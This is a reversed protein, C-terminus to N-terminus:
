LKTGLRLGVLALERKINNLIVGGVGHLKLLDRETLQVLDRMKWIDRRELANLFITNFQTPNLRIVDEINTDLLVKPNQKNFVVGFIESHEQVHNEILKMMFHRFNTWDKGRHKGQSELRDYLSKFTKITDREFKTM